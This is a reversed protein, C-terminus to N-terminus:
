TSRWCPRSPIPRRRRVRCPTSNRWPRSVAAPPAAQDLTGEAAVRASGDAAHEHGSADKAELLRPKDKKEGTFGAELLGRELAEDSDQRTFPRVTEQEARSGDLAASRRRSLPGLGRGLRRM